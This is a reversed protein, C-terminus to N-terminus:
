RWTQVNDLVLSVVLLEVGLLRLHLLHVFLKPVIHLKGVELDLRRVDLHICGAIKNTKYSVCLNSKSACDANRNRRVNTNATGPKM